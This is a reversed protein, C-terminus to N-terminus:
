SDWELSIFITEPIPKGNFVERKIYIRGLFSTATEHYIIAGRTEDERVLQIRSLKCVM